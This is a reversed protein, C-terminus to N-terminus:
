YGCPKPVKISTARDLAAGRTEYVMVNVDRGGLMDSLDARLPDLLDPLPNPATRSFGRIDAGPEAAAADFLDKSVIALDIDSAPRFPLGTHYSVGTAASGQVYAQYYNVLGGLHQDITAGFRAFQEAGDFGHPIGSSLGFPDTDVTPAGNFSFPNRGGSLGLPDGSLWRAVRSDFFRFRTTCLGTEEDIYQGLLRFPSGTCSPSEIPCGELVGWATHTAAWAVAGSEADVLEKPTGLHDTVVVFTRGGEHQFVPILTGPAHVFTRLGVGALTDAAVADGDWVLETVRTAEGSSGAGIFTKRVRRGFADYSFRVVDGTSLRVARLRDRGDWSYETVDGNQAITRTRRGRVDYTYRAQDTQCLLDGRQVRWIEAGGDRLLGDLMARLCGAADYSFVDHRGRSWEGILRGVEDYDYRTVGRLSDDIEIVRKAGDYRFVREVAVRRELDGETRALLRQEALLGRADYAGTVAVSGSATRRGIERGRADREFVLRVGRHEMATVNGLRDYAYTTRSGDPLIRSARRGSADYTYEIAHAGQLEQLIRGREDRKLSTVFTEGAEVSTARTIRGRRDREFTIVGDPSVEEVVNGLPDYSLERTTHDPYTVRALRGARSHEYRFRRGDFTQEERVRGAEDYVFRYTEGLPNTVEALRERGTTRFAWASGDPFTVRALSALGAREVTTTGVLADTARLVRGMADYEARITTGDPHHIAVPAGLRNYEVRTTRGLPDTKTIPRRLNDYSYVTRAGSADREEVSPPSTGYAFSLIPGEEDRVERLRGRPDREFRYAQGNSFAIRALEHHEDHEFFTSGGDSDTRVVPRDGEYAWETVNGAPDIEKTRNGRADYAYSTREGAGNEEAILYLDDDYVYTRVFSGDPTAERLVVGDENWTYIRPEDNGSAFTTRAEIDPRLEVRHIEGDGWTRVCWGTKEDYEYYFSTGNRLTKKALRREDDYAYREAHGLADTASALEGRETYAYDFWLELAGGVWVELRVVRAGGDLKVLIERGATDVIRRLRDGTYDLAIANAWADRIARLRAPGDPMLPAFERTLRSDLSYVAYAGDPLATLTLRERRHFTSEGPKLRGFYIERGDEAHLTTVGDDEEIWQEFGHSWGGRGLGTRQRARTSAYSRKWELPIAGPLSLDVQWDVVAGTAVDVPEGACKCKGQGAGSSKGANKGAAEAGERAAAEAAEREAAQLGQAMDRAATEAGKRGAQFVRSLGKGILHGAGLTALFIAGEIALNILATKIGAAYDDWTATTEVTGDNIVLSSPLHGFDWCDLDTSVPGAIACIALAEGEGIVSVKPLWARHNGLLIHLPTLLDLPDPIIGLHPWLFKPEHQEAVAQVGNFFVTGRQKDGLVFPHMLNLKWFWMPVFPWHIGFHGDIGAILWGNTDHFHVSM